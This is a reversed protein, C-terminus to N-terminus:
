SVAILKHRLYSNVVFIPFIKSNVVFIANLTFRSLALIMASSRYLKKKKKKNSVFTILNLSIFSQIVM